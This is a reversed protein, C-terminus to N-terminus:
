CISVCHMEAPDRFHQSKVRLNRRTVRMDCQDAGAETAVSLMFRLICLRLVEVVNTLHNVTTDHHTSDQRQLQMIVTMVPGLTHYDSTAAFARLYDDSRRGGLCPGRGHGSLWLACAFDLLTVTKIHQTRMQTMTLVATDLLVRSRCCQVAVEASLNALGVFLLCILVCLM